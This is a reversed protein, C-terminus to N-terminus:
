LMHYLGLGYLALFGPIGLFGVTLVSVPNIGIGLSIGMGALFINLFHMGIIGFISRLLINLLWEFKWKLAVTLLLLIGIMIVLYSIKTQDM